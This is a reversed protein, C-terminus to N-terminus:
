FISKLMIIMNFHKEGSAIAPISQQALLVVTFGESIVASTTLCVEVPGADESITYELSSFSIILTETHSASVIIKDTSEQSKVVEEM